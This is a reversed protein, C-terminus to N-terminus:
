AVFGDLEILALVEFLFVRCHCHLPALLCHLRALGGYLRLHVDEMAVMSFELLPPITACAGDIEYADDRRIDIKIHSYMITKQM